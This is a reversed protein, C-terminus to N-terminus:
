QKVPPAPPVKPEKLHPAKSIDPVRHYPPVNLMPGKPNAPTAPFTAPPAAPFGPGKKIRVDGNQADLSIRTAGSGIKSNLSKNQDGSVPMGYDTVIDGNHARASVTASANPPLTVEVDGKNNRADM